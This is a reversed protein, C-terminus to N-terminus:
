FFALFFFYTKSIIKEFNEHSIANKFVINGVVGGVNDHIKNWELNCLYVQQKM